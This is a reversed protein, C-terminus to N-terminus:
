RASSSSAPATSRRRRRSWTPTPGSRTPRRRSTPCTSRIRRATSRSRAPWRRRSSISTYQQKESDLQILVQGATVRDGLDALIRSVKGDAESSITVQDVAALTGVVDVARRVSDKRVVAAAVPKAAGDRNSAQATQSKSCGAGALALVGVLALSHSLTHTCMLTLSRPSTM